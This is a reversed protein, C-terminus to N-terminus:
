DIVRDARLLLSQPVTLGLAKAAGVNIVLEFRAPQQIPLDGPKTGAFIKAVLDATQRYLEPYIAGYAMLGGAEVLKTSGYIAPLRHKAALEVILKRNAEFIGDNGVMIGDVHKRSATLVAVELDEPRRVELPEAQVGLARAAVQLAKFARLNVLNDPNHLDAVRSMGPVLERLLGLRKAELDALVSSTGTINGGPRALSSVFLLPDGTAVVVVPISATANRAAIAAPTGHAVILDVKLAVLDSALAAFRDSRGDSSRYEIVFNRGEVYGLEALRGYFADLNATNLM